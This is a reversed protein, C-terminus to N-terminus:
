VHARGIQLLDDARSMAQVPKETENLAARGSDWAARLEKGFAEEDAIVLNDGTHNDAPHVRQLGLRAALRAAILTSENNQAALRELLAVLAADLGDGAHREGQPLHLWQVYASTKDNGALFLAALHRREAATPQAPWAKLTKDVEALATPVDLGTAARAAQTTACFDQGYRAAHRAVFDCEEGPVAEITIIEPKFAALRDLVGQLSAPDFGAPMGRLHVTGLVLVQARPGTMDRDLGKLQVQAQATFPLTAALALAATALRTRM